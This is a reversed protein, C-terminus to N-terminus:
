SQIIDRQRENSPSCSYQTLNAEITIHKSSKSRGSICFVTYQYHLHSTPIICCLIVTHVGLAYTLSVTAQMPLLRSIFRSGPPPSALLEKTANNVKDEQDHDEKANTPSDDNDNCSKKNLLKADRLICKVTNVPDWPPNVVATTTNRNGDSKSNAKVSSTEKTAKIDALIKIM